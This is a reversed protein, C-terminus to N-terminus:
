FTRFLFLFTPFPFSFVRLEHTRARAKMLFKGLTAPANLVQEEGKQEQLAYCQFAERQRGPTVGLGVSRQSILRHHRTQSHSSTISLFFYESASRGHVSVDELIIGLLVAVIVRCLAAVIARCLAAVIVRCLAAVIVRCLAAVIVRCLAAM